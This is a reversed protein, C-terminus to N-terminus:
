ELYDELRVDDLGPYRKREFDARNALPATADIGIRGWHTEHPDRAFSPVGPIVMVDRDPRCRTSVAWMVDEIDHINVDEDVVVCFLQRDTEAGFSGMMAKQAQGEYRKAIQVVVFQMLPFCSVDRVGPDFARIARHIKAACPIASLAIEEASGSLIAHFLAGKRAVGRRVMLVHNDAQAVYYDMWEGFPGEPRREHPLIEGELVFETDAPVEIDVTECRRMAFRRGAFREALDIESLGPGITAAAALAVAPPAGILVAVPLPRGRREADHHLRYLDSSRGLRTRVEGGGMMQMRHYSANVAGTEPDRALVVAATLYPGADKEAFTLRPLEDLGVEDVPPPGGDPAAALVTAEAMASWRAALGSAEAGFLRAVLGYSGYVNSVVPHRAGAVREFVVPLNRTEQIRKTVAALEFRPNVERRVRLLRGESELATLLRRLDLDLLPGHSM